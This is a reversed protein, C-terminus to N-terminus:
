PRPRGLAARCDPERCLEARPQPTRCRPCLVWEPAGSADAPATTGGRGNAAVLDLLTRADFEFDGFAVISDSDVTGQRIRRRMGARTVFTGHKSQCDTM